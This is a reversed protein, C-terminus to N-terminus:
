ANQRWWVGFADGWGNGMGDNWLFAPEVQVQNGPPPDGQSTVIAPNLNWPGSFTGRQGNATTWAGQFFQTIRVDGDPAPGPVQACNIQAQTRIATGASRCASYDVLASAHNFVAGHADFAFAHTTSTTRIVYRLSNGAQNYYISFFVGTDPTAEQTFPFNEIEVNSGNNWLFVGFAVWGTTNSVGCPNTGFMSLYGGCTTLGAVAAVDTNTLGIDLTPATGDDLAVVGADPLTILAQNYRFNRGSGVYGACGGTYIPSTSDIGIFSVAKSCSPTYVPPGGSPTFVRHAAWAAAGMSAAGAPGAVAFGLTTIMTGAVATALLARSICGRM